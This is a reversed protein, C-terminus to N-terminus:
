QVDHVLLEIRLCKESDGAAADYGHFGDLADDLLRTSAEANYRNRFGMEFHCDAAGADVVEEDPQLFLRGPVDGWFHICLTM